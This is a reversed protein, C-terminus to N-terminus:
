RGTPRQLADRRRIAENRWGPQDQLALYRNWAALAEDRRDLRELLLAKNFWAEAATPSLALAKDFADLATAADAQNKQQVFRSMYAAGVDARYAADNPKSRAAAELSAISGDIDGRLLQGVGWAHVDDAAGSSAARERLREAEARVSLDRVDESGRMPSRLPGYQFGGSPRAEILREPGVATVLRDLPTGREIVFFLATAAVAMLGGATAFRLPKTWFVQKPAPLEDKGREDEFEEVDAATGDLEAETRIVEAVLEYCDACSALHGVVRNRGAADLTGDVYAALTAADICGSPSGGPRVDAM